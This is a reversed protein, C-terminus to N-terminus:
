LWHSLDREILRSLREVDPRCRRRLEDDSHSAKTPRDRVLTRIGNLIRHRTKYPAVTQVMRKITPSRYIGLVTRELLSHGPAENYVRFEPQFEGDIELFALVEGYTKEAAATVDELLVVKVADRGFTDLYREVQPAFSAVSFYDLCKPLSTHPPIRRGNRRDEGADVAEHFDVIDERAGAHRLCNAHRSRMQEVPPRLMILIRAEPCFQKIRAPAQESFLYLVSADGRWQALESGRYLALYESEDKISDREGIDLEPCFYHPEKTRGYNEDYPFFIQPHQRLYEYMSTTGCKPAGVMFLNPTPKDHIM